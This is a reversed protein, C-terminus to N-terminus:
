LHTLYETYIQQNLKFQSEVQDIQDKKKTILGRLKQELVEIKSEKDTM